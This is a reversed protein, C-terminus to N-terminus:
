SFPVDAVACGQALNFVVLTNPDTAGIDNLSPASYVKYHLSIDGCTINRDQQHRGDAWFGSCKRGNKKGLFQRLSDATRKMNSDGTLIIREFSTESRSVRDSSASSESQSVSMELIANQCGCKQVLSKFDVSKRIPGTPHAITNQTM